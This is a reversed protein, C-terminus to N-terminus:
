EGTKATIYQSVIKNQETKLALYHRAIIDFTSAGWGILLQAILDAGEERGAEKERTVVQSIYEEFEGRLRDSLGSMNEAKLEDMDMIATYTDFDNETVLIYDEAFQHSAGPREMTKSRDPQTTTNKYLQGGIDIM